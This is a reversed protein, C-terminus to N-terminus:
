TRVQLYMGLDDRLSDLGYNGAYRALFGDVNFGEHLFDEKHFAVGAPCPPVILSSSPMKTRSCILKTLISERTNTNIIEDHLYTIILHLIALQRFNLPNINYEESKELFWDTVRVWPCSDYPSLIIFIISSYIVWIDAAAPQCNRGLVNPTHNPSTMM